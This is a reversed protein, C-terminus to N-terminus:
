EARAVGFLRSWWSRREVAAEPRRQDTLLATAQQRWHDRDQRVDEIQDLLQSREREREAEITELRARVAALEAALSRTEHHEPHPQLDNAARNWSGTGLAVAPYVRHLEAPDIEYSGDGRRTASIKGCKIDRSLTSKSKGTAKAATGLTYQMPNRIAEHAPKQFLVV